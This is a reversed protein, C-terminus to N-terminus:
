MTVDCWSRCLLVKIKIFDRESACVKKGKSLTTVNNVKHLYRDFTVNDVGAVGLKEM